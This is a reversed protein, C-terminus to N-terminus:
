DNDFANLSVKLSKIERQIRFQNAQLIACVDRVQRILAVIIIHTESVPLYVIYHERVPYIGLGTAATLTNRDTINQQHHAIFEAGKHLDTFYATTQEKGWRAQSWRKAERFDREATVTLTYSKKKAM